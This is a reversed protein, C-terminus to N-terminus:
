VNRTLVVFIPLKGTSKQAGWEACNESLLKLARIAGAADFTDPNMCREVVDVAHQLVWEADVELEKLAKAAM